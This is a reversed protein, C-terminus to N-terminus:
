NPGFRLEFEAWRRLYHELRRLGDHAYLEFASQERAARIACDGCLADSIPIERTCGDGECVKTYGPFLFSM